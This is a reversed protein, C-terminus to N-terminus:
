SAAPRTSAGRTPTSGVGVEDRRRAAAVVGVDTLEIGEDLHRHDRPRGPQGVGRQLLEDARSVMGPQSPEHAGGVDVHELEVHGQHLQFIVVVAIPATTGRIGAVIWPSTTETVTCAEGGM